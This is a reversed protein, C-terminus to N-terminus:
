VVRRCMSPNTHINMVVIESGEPGAAENSYEFQPKTWRAEGATRCDAETTEGAFCMKGWGTVYLAGNDHSHCPMKANPKWWVHLVDIESGKGFWEDHQNIDPLHAVDPPTLDESAMYFRHGFASSFLSPASSLQPEFPTKLADVITGAQNDVPVLSSHHVGAQVWVTDGTKMTKTEGAVTITVNGQAVFYIMDYSHWVEAAPYPTVSGADWELVNHACVDDQMDAIGASTGNWRYVAVGDAVSTRSDFNASPGYKIFHFYNPVTKPPVTTKTEPPYDGISV